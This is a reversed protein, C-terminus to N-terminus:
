DGYLDIVKSGLDQRIQYLDQEPTNSDKSRGFDIICIKADIIVETKGGAGDFEEMQPDVLLYNRFHADGHCIGLRNLERFAAVIDEYLGKELRRNEKFLLQHPTRGKIREMAFARMAPDVEYLEPVSFKTTVLSAAERHIRIEHERSKYKPEWVKVAVSDLTRDTIDNPNVMRFIYGDNGNDIYHSGHRAGAYYDLAGPMWERILRLREAEPSPITQPIEPGRFKM